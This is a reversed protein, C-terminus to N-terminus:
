SIPMLLHTDESGLNTLSSLSIEMRTGRRRIEARHGTMFKPVCDITGTYTSRLGAEGALPPGALGTAGDTQAERWLWDSTM